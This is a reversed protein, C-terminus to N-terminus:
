ANCFVLNDDRRSVGQFYFAPLSQELLAPNEQNYQNGQGLQCGQNGERTNRRPSDSLSYCLLSSLRLDANLKAVNRINDLPALLVRLWCMSLKHSPRAGCSLVCRSFGWRFVPESEAGRCSFDGKWERNMLLHCVLDGPCTMLEKYICM